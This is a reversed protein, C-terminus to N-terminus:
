RRDRLWLGPGALRDAGQLPSVQNGAIGTALHLIFPPLVSALTGQNSSGAFYSVSVQLPVLGVKITQTKGNKDTVTQSTASSDSLGTQATGVIQGADTAKMGVGSVPSATVKDGAKIRGNIDSVLAKSTGSIVIQVQHSGDNLALLPKDAVLGLLQYNHGSSAPEAVNKDSSLGMITGAVLNTETTTYGQSVGSNAFAAAAPLLLFVVLFSVPIFRRLKTMTKPYYDRTLTM